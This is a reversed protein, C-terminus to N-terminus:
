FMRGELPGIVLWDVVASAVALLVVVLGVVGLLRWGRFRHNTAADAQARRQTIQAETEAAIPQEAPTPTPTATVQTSKITNTNSM